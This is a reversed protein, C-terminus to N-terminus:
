GGRGPKGWRPDNMAKILVDLFSSAAVPLTRNRKKIVAIPRAFAADDIPRSTVRPDAQIEMASAPLVTVGLGASVMGVATMMYTAECAPVPLRGAAIFAADVLARVSTERDMLILPYAALTDLTIKRRKALPHDVPCVVRMKDETRHVVDLTSDTVNGGTVGIDVQESRVFESVRSAIADKVVFTMRPNAGRFQSTLYPLPGAAFSPLVAIRVIGHRQMSLERTDKVVTDLESLTRQLVPLMDRGQRTLEVTRSTRDLLRAGLFEELKRIQVTLAPQSLNLLKAARTFSGLHAVAVFARAQRLNMDM